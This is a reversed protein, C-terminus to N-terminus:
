CQELKCMCLCSSHVENNISTCLSRSELRPVRSLMYALELKWEKVLYCLCSFVSSVLMVHAFCWSHKCTSMRDCSDCYKCWWMCLVFCKWWWLCLVFCKCWGLCLASAACYNESVSTSILNSSAGCKRSISLVSDCLIVKVESQCSRTVKCCHQMYQSVYTFKDHAFYGQGTIWICM